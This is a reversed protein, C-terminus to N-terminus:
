FKGSSHSFGRSNVSTHSSSSSEHHIVKTTSHTYNDVAHTIDIGDEPIYESAQKAIHVSKMKAKMSFCVSLAIILSIGAAILLATKFLDWDIYIRHELFALAKADAKEQRQLIKKYHEIYYSEAKQLFAMCGEYWNDNRFHPKFADAIFDKKLDTFAAHGDEGYACIDYDRDAFNLMLLIGNKEPGVGLNYDIYYDEALLEIDYSTPDNDTAIYFGFDYTDRFGACVENLAYYEDESFVSANDIVYIDEYGSEEESITDESEEEAIEEATEEVLSEQCFAGWICFSFLTFFILFRKKM